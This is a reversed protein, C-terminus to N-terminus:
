RRRDMWNVDKRGDKMIKIICLFEVKRWFYFPVGCYLM